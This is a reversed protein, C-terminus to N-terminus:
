LGPAVLLSAPRMERERAAKREPKAWDQGGCLGSFTRNRAGHQWAGCFPGREKGPSFLVFFSFTKLLLSLFFFFFFLFLLWKRLSAKLIMCATFILARRTQPASDLTQNTSSFFARHQVSSTRIGSRIMKHLKSLECKKFPSSSAQHILSRKKHFLGPSAIIATIM